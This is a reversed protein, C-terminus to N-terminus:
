KWHNGWPDCFFALRLSLVPVDHPESVIKVDRRKLEEVTADVDDVHMGLHHWGSLAYSDRFDAYAPRDAAGPGAMIEVSFSDDAAPSVFGFTLNGIVASKVLRFDLKTTYWAIAEDFDPVRIGVHYVKWSAFPSATNAPSSTEPASM